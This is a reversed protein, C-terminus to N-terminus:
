SRQRLPVILCRWDDGTAAGLCLARPQGNEIFVSPRELREPVLTSGDSKKLCKGTVRYHNARRWTFGDDSTILGIYTHAHFVAYFQERPQDYWISADETDIDAIAPAPLLEFPGTPSEGVALAQVRQPMPEHPQRPEIDGKLIMLTRGDPMMTVGPNVAVNYIPEAPALLPSDFRRYPGILKEAVAVGTCQSDRIHGRTPGSRSSIYYLYYTDGFRKLKPNHTMLEDWHGDGRGSLLVSHHRYPGEVKDAVALAIESHTLWADVGADHGWRSYALYYRGDEGAILNPGWCFFGKERFIGEPGLPDIMKGIDLTDM